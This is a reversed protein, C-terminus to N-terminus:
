NEHLFGDDDTDAAARPSPTIDCGERRCVCLLHHRILDDIEKDSLDQLRKRIDQMDGNGRLPALGCDRLPIQYFPCKEALATIFARNLM